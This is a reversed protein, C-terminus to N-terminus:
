QAKTGTAAIIEKWVPLASKMMAAFQDPGMGSAVLGQIEMSKKLESTAMAKLISAHLQELIPKPTGAPALIGFWASFDFGPYTEAITPVNPMLDIRKATTVAIAKLQGNDVFPKVSPVQYIMMKVQGSVVDTIAQGVAKYPVHTLNIGAKLKLAEGALHTTTGTGASAYDLNGVKKVYAIFEALNNAPVSPHVVMISPADAIMTIPAFDAVPDYTVNQMTLPGVAHSAVTGLVLTYGDNPARAAEMAGLTGGAGPKNEIVFTQGLDAGVSNGVLRAIVDATSGAGFPVILRIPKTPYKQAHAFPAILATSTLAAAATLLQRRNM